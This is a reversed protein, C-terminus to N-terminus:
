KVGGFINKVNHYILKKFKELSINKLEACKKYVYIVLAPKNLKGRFPVPALYPADTELIVKEVPLYNFVERTLHANKFTIIGTFSFYVDFNALLRKANLVDSSYCHMVIKNSLNFSKLTNFLEDDSERSHIIIPFDTKVAIDM